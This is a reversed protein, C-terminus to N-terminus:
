PFCYIGKENPHIFFSIVLKTHIFLDKSDIMFTARVVYQLAGLLYLQQKKQNFSRSQEGWYANM